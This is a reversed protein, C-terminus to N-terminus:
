STAAGTSGGNEAARVGVVNSCNSRDVASEYRRDAAGMGHERGSGQERSHGAANGAGGSKSSNGMSSVDAAGAGGRAAGANSSSDADLM